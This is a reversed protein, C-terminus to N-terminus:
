DAEQAIARKGDLVFAPLRSLLESLSAAEDDSLLSGTAAANKPFHAWYAGGGPNRLSEIQDPDGHFLKEDGDAHSCMFVIALKCAEGYATPLCRSLDVVFSDITSIRAPTFRM